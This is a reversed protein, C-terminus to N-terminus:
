VKFLDVNKAIVEIAQELTGSMNKLDETTSNVYETGTSIESVAGKVTNMSDTLHNMDNMIFKGGKDMENGANRLEATSDNMTHLAELIQQSGSQQEEMAGRIQMVLEGTSSVRDSVSHYLKDSEGAAEVVQQIEQQITNLEAGIKNSQKSSNEALKRIEDAVVSFGRGAEGAHAAEIAANMALLNTQAAINQITTNAEVMSSSQEFISHILENVVANKRIGDDTDKELYTFEEAMKVVSTDVASINGIMEEVAASAEAVSSAQGQIMSDLSEINQSIEMVAAASNSISEAQAQVQGDVSQIGKSMQDITAISTSVHQSMRSGIEELDGKSAQVTKMIQRFKALFRNVSDVLVGIEDRIPNDLQVTLDAEGTSLNDVLGTIKHLRNSIRTILAFVVVFLVIGIVIAFSIIIGRASEVPKEIEASAVALGITWGLEEVPTIFVRSDVGDFNTEVNGNRKSDIVAVLEQPLVTKDKLLMAPDKHAIIKGTSDILFFYGTDGLTYSSVETSITNIGLMGVFLGFTKGKSNKAARAVPIVYQGSTKSLVMDDVVADKGQKMIAQYYGREVLAGKTGVLGTDRVSTGESDCFFMYDYEPNRLNTHQQLWELVQEDDGTKVVDADSYIRMDNQYIKVWNDIQTSRGSLVNTAMETYSAVIQKRVGSTVVFVLFTMLVAIALLVLVGIKFRISDGFRIKLKHEM